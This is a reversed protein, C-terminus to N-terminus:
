GKEVLITATVSGDPLGRLPRPSRVADAGGSTSAALVKVCEPWTWPGPSCIAYFREPGPKGDLVRGGAQAAGRAVEAGGGGKGPPFVRAVEGSADVAAIWLHCAAPTEVAFRVAADAPVREGERLTRADAAAAVTFGLGGAPPTSRGPLLLALAIAAAAAAAAVPVLLWRRPRSRAASATVADVTAPYVFRRFDEGERQM